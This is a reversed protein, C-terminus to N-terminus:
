EKEGSWHMFREMKMKSPRFIGTRQDGKVGYKWPGRPLGTLRRQMQELKQAPVTQVSCLYGSRVLIVGTSQTM